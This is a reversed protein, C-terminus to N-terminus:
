VSWSGSVEVVPAAPSHHQHDIIAKHDIIANSV